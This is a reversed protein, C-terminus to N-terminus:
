LKKTKRNRIRFTPVISIIQDSKRKTLRGSRLFLGPNERKLTRVGQATGPGHDEFTKSVKLLGLASATKKLKSVKGTSIKCLKSLLGTSPPIQDTYGQKRVRVGKRIAKGISTVKAAFLMPEFIEKRKIETLSAEFSQLNFGKTSTMYKWSRLYYSTQDEGIMGDNLLSKLLGSITRPDKGYERALANIDSKHLYGPQFKVKLFALLRSPENIALGSPISARM